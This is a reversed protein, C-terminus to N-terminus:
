RGVLTWFGETKSRIQPDYMAEAFVSPTWYKGEYTANVLFRFEKTGGKPLTFYTYVRDDRMDQYDYSSGENFRIDTMLRTNIFECGPPVMVTLAMNEYDMRVGPHNLSVSITYDQGLQLNKFDVVTGNNDLYKVKLELDNQEASSEDRLPTGSLILSSFIEAEGNNKINIKNELKDNLELLLSQAEEKLETNLLVENARSVAVPVAKDVNELDDVFLSFGVMCQAMEQTTLYRNDEGTFYPTLEDIVRKALIKDGREMLVRLILAQDRINSGFTNGFERYKEVQHTTKKLLVSAAAEEGVLTMAHSLMFKSTSNLNPVLRLRNMAGYNPKDALVLSYLRYAQDLDQRGMDRSSNTSPIAWRGAADYQYNIADKLMNKPVDYGMRKAELLFQLAYTTGWTNAKNGGPWYSFGGNPLQLFRLKQIVAKYRQRFSMQQPNNLLGMKSLYIQPFVSSVSQEVCGHPYRSLRDVFPEFSFNLGRSLNISAQNTGKIGIPDFTFDISEGAKAMKNVTTTIPPSSPNLDIEIKASTTENGSKATVEFQLVGIEDPTDM